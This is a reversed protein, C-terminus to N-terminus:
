QQRHQRHRDHLHQRWRAIARDECRGSVNQSSWQIPQVPGIPWDEGGNPTLVTISSGPQTVTVPLGATLPYGEFLPFCNPFLTQTEYCATITATGAQQWHLRVVQLGPENIQEVTVVTPNSSYLHLASWHSINLAQSFEQTQCGYQKLYVKVDQVQGAIGSLPAAMESPPEGLLLCTGEDSEGPSACPSSNFNICGDTLPEGTENTSTNIKAQPDYMAVRGILGGGPSLDLWQAQGREVWGPIAEGNVDALMRDRVHRIDLTVTEGPQLEQIGWEWDGAEHV